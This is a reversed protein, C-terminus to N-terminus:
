KGKKNFVLESYPLEKKLYDLLLNWEINRHNRRQSEILKITAYNMCVRRKQTFSEPMIAKIINRYESNTLNKTDYLMKLNKHVLIFQKLYDIIHEKEIDNYKTLDFCDLSIDENILTHMTSESQKSVGIRYTDFEQWMYRSWDIDISFHIQQLFKDHGSAIPTRSLKLALELDKEGICFSLDEPSDSKGLSKKAFRAGQIALIIEEIIISKKTILKVQM